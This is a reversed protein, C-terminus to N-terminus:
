LLYIIGTEKRLEQSIAKRLDLNKLMGVKLRGIKNLPIYISVIRM